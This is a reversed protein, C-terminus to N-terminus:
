SDATCLVGGKVGSAQRNSPPETATWRVIGIPMGAKDMWITILEPLPNNYVIPFFPTNLQSCSHHFNSGFLYINHPLNAPTRDDYLLLCGCSCKFAIGLRNESWSSGTEM